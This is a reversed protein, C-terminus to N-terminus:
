LSFDLKPDKPVKFGRKQLAERVEKRYKFDHIMRHHNPCLGILNEQSNNKKNEDLHHLDIMRDFECIVCKETLKKYGETDLNYRKKYNHAKTYDLRFIFNYCGNCVKKAHIKIERGCRKCIGKPPEWAINRYCNYCLGKAHHEKEKGCRKCIKHM